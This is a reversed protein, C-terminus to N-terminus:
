KNVRPWINLPFNLYGETRGYPGACTVDSGLHQLIAMYSHPHLHPRPLTRIGRLLLFTLIKNWNHTEISSRSSQASKRQFESESFHNENWNEHYWAIMRFSLWYFSWWKLVTCKKMKKKVSLWLKVYEILPAINIRLNWQSLQKRFPNM